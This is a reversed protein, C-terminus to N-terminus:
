EGVPEPRIVSDPCQARDLETRPPRLGIVTSLLGITWCGSLVGSACDRLSRLAAAEGGPRVFVARPAALRRESGGVVEEFTPKEDM